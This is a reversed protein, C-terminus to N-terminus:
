SAFDSSIENFRGVVLGGFSSFNQELGVVVNHSGTRTDRCAPDTSSHCIPDDRRLENYGVILNGLGNTTETTGLGNVIRLNAGTIVVENAADDFAMANLKKELIAMREGMRAQYEDAATGSQLPLSVLGLLMVGCAIGRWWRLRREVTRIHQHLHETRQELAEFRERFNDMSEM